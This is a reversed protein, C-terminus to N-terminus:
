RRSFWDLLSDFLNTLSDPDAQTKNDFDKVVLGCVMCTSLDNSLKDTKCRPCNDKPSNGEKTNNNKILENLISQNLFRTKFIYDKIENQTEKTFGSIMYKNVYALETDSYKKLKDIIASM